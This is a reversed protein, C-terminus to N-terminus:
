TKLSVDFKIKIVELNSATVVGNLINKIMYTLAFAPNGSTSDYFCTVLNNDASYSTGNNYYGGAILDLPVGAPTIGTFLPKSTGSAEGNVNVREIGPGMMVNGFNTVKENNAVIIPCNISLSINGPVAMSFQSAAVASITCLPMIIKRFKTM